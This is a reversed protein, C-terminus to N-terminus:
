LHPMDKISIPNNVVLRFGVDEFRSSPNVGYRWWCNASGACPNMGRISHELGSAPGQPNNTSMYSYYFEDYWDLCHEYINQCMELCGFPSPLSHHLGIPFRTKFYKACDDLLEYNDDDDNGWPYIRGDTGRCAKEWQAETPLSYTTGEIESVWRAYIACDQWSTFVVPYTDEPCVKELMSWYNWEYKASVTFERWQKVSVPCKQICFDSLWVRREPKSARKVAEDQSPAGM